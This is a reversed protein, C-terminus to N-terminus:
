QLMADEAKAAFLLPIDPDAGKWLTLFDQYATKAKVTEGQLALARALGLHALSGTACNQVLSRRDIIKQFEAAAQAGQGSALYAQGRIYAPYICSYNPQDVGTSSEFPVATQLIDIAATYTKRRIAIQGRITPLWVSQTLTNMPFRKNLDDVTAQARSVDGILALALGAESVADRSGSARKLAADVKARAMGFNGFLAERLAADAMWLAAAEQNKASEASVVTRQTIERAKKLRGYYGETGAELGLIENEVDLKGEFWAAQNAMEATDGQLFALSYLNTHLAEEDLKRALAQNTIDKAETLRNIALFYTGLNEYATVNEPYLELSKRTAEVAREYQGISGYALGLNLFPLWDRPYSQVWLQYTQISKDQEGTVFGYYSATIRLKDRESAHERLKFAKTIYEAAKAPEGINRYMTGLRAYAAAFNPDLQIAREYFPIAAASNQKRGLSFAKLAELSPTMAQDLAVDFQQVSHLSEGLQGRLKASASGLVDLVQEKSAAVAQERAIPDDTACNIANLGLVYQKGLGAISGGIVARSGTRQCVERAIEDTLREGPQRTMEKLAARIKSDSVINLFPSQGLDVALAQKLADDFVAEGTTNTFDALVVGDKDTLAPGRHRGFLSWGGVALCLTAITGAVIWVYRRNKSEGAFHEVHSSPSIRMAPPTAEEYPVECKSVTETEDEPASETFRKLRLLDTRMETANGYRQEPDKQLAKNVVRQLGVPLDPNLRVPAEPARNLLGDFIDATSDGRFPQVGTAMEYLVAGFSFIDTRADLPKGRAQEPSMYAITGVISGVTTLSADLTAGPDSEDAPRAVKALGFDLLKAQSDGTIFINAPKIDRHIIGKTHAARLADTIQCGVDLLVVANLPKGGILQKLTLGELLEMVIFTQGEADGIEHITCINPHNLASAARAERRFREVTQSDQALDGPLFKLAVHRGLSLDEAEYVVGMGGVGLQKLVRYHSFTRGVPSGMM